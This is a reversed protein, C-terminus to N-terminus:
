TARLVVQGAARRWPTLAVVISSVATLAAVVGIAAGSGFADAGGGGLRRDTRDLASIREEVILVGRGVSSSVTAVVV